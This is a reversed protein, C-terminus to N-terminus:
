MRVACEKVFDAQGKHIDFQLLIKKASKAFACAAELAAPMSGWQAATFKRTSNEIKM